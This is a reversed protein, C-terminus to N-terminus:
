FEFVAKIVQHQKKNGIQRLAQNYEGIPYRHTVLWSLDLDTKALFEIALDFSKWKKGQYMEAHNYNISAKVELEKVFIATWDVGKAVGPLGVLTVKGGTRTLRIADDLTSDSGVCDYTRDAGGVLVAKGIPPKLLRGGTREAVAAYLDGGLLVKSAGLRTAAEAQFAYRASVLIKARCGLARLAALVMLGATGAGIILVTQDDSPLDTLATHLGYALPEVLMANENSLSDPVRYLQSVHGLYYPSWSGGTNSGIGLMIQPAFAGQTYRQCLNIEGRACFECPEAFGRPTCWFLPEVIVREGAQWREVKSGVQAIRGVNEHGFTFPFSSFPENYTSTHLYITGLDTGCIGGLLTEVKVWDEGPLEPEPIEGGFTCSLGSWYIPPYFRGLALGLAYRPITFKFQVAKM